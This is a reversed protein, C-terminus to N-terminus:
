KKDKKDPEKKDTPKTGKSKHVEKLKGEVEVVLIDDGSQFVDIAVARGTSDLMRIDETFRFTKEVDKGKM